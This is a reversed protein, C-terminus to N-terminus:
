RDSVFVYDAWMVKAKQIAEEKMKIVDDFREETWHHFKTESKRRKPQTSFKYDVSHYLDRTSNLWTDIVQLTNDENHDSRIRFNINKM